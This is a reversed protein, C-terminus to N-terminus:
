LTPRVVDACGDCVMEDANLELLDYVESLWHEFVKQGYEDCVFIHM